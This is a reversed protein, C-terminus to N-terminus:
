AGAHTSLPVTLTNGLFAVCPGRDPSSGPGSASILTLGNLTDHVITNTLYTRLNHSTSISRECSALSIPITILIQLSAYINVYVGKDIQKLTADISDPIHERRDNKGKSMKECLLLGAPLGAYNPRIDQRYHVTWFVLPSPYLKDLKNTNGGCQVGFFFVIYLICSRSIQLISALSIKEALEVCIVTLIRCKRETSNSCEM